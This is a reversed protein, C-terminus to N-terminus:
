RQKEMPETNPKKELEEVRALLGEISDNYATTNSYLADQGFASNGRGTTNARLADKGLASNAFGTTNLSLARRGFASNFSGTTVSTLADKGVASNEGSGTTGLNGAGAGVFTNDTGTTHVFLAGDRSINGTAEDIRLREITATSDEVVFGDTADFPVTVDGAVAPTALALLLLALLSALHTSRAM